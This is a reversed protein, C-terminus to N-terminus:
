SEDGFYLQCPLSIWLICVFKAHSSHSKNVRTATRRGTEESVTPWSKPGLIRAWNRGLKHKWGYHEKIRYRAKTSKYMAIWTDRKLAAPHSIKRQALVASNTVLDQMHALRLMPNPHSRANRRLDNHIDEVVKNDPFSQLFGMLLRRGSPCNESDFDCREYLMHLIRISSNRSILLDDWLLRAGEVVLRKAELLMIRLWNRNETCYPLRSAFRFVTFFHKEAPERIQLSPRRMGEAAARRDDLRQSLLPAYCEPAISFRAVTSWVRHSLLHWMLDLARGAHKDVDAFGPAIGMFRLNEQNYLTTKITESFQGDRAWAGGAMKMVHRANDLPSKCNQAEQGYWTWVAKTAIYLIKCSQLLLSTMLMYCLKLGGSPRTLSCKRLSFMSRYGVIPM